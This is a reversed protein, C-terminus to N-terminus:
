IMTSTWIGRHSMGTTVATRTVTSIRAMAMTRTSAVTRVMSCITGHVPPTVAAAAAAAAAVLAMVTAKTRNGSM